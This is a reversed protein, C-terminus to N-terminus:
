MIHFNIHVLSHHTVNDSCTCQSVLMLTILIRGQFTMRAVVTAVVEVLSPRRTREKATGTGTALAPALRVPPKRGTENMLNISM